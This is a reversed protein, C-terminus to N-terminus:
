EDFKMDVMDIDLGLVAFFIRFIKYNLILKKLVLSIKKQLMIRSDAKDKVGCAGYFSIAEM